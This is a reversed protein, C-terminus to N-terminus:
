TEVLAGSMMDLIFSYWFIPFVVLIIFDQVNCDRVQLTNIRTILVCCLLVIFM